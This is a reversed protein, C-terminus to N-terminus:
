QNAAEPLFDIGLFDAVKYTWVFQQSGANLVRFRCLLKSRDAPCTRSDILRLGRAEYGLVPRDVLYNHLRFLRLDHRVSCTAVIIPETTM